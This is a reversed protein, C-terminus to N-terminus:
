GMMQMLALAVAVLAVLMSVWHSSAKLKDPTLATFANSNDGACTVVAHHSSFRLNTIFIDHPQLRLLRQLSAAQLVVLEGESTGAAVYAGDPSVDLATVPSAGVKTCGELKAPTTLSARVM